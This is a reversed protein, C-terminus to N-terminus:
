SVIVVAIPELDFHRWFVLAAHDVALVVLAVPQDM